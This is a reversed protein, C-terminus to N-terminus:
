LYRSTVLAPGLVPLVASIFLVSKRVMDPEHWAGLGVGLGLAIGICITLSLFFLCQGKASFSAACFGGLLTGVAGILGGAVLSMSPVHSPDRLLLSDEPVIIAAAIIVAAISVQREPMM